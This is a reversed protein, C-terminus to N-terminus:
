ASKWKYFRSGILFTVLGWAALVGINLWFDSNMVSFGYVMSDRIGNAFYTLPLAHSIPQIYDPMMSVDFFIGSIFMMIFSALNAIAMYSELTKSFAAIMFGMAAFTITGVIFIPLFSLLNINFNANYFFIGISALLIIQIAAMVFKVMIESVGFLKVNIPALMLRKLLGNRRIEVMGVMGFLGAQSIAMAIMGTLLFDNYKIDESGSSITRMSMNYKPAVKAEGYNMQELAKNMIGSVAQTTASNTKEANIIIEIPSAQGNAPLVIAADVKKDKVLEEAKELTVPQDEKWKLVPIYKLGMLLNNSSNDQQNTVAVVNIKFEKDSSGGMISLFIVLLLVPFFISWFWVQKERFTVKLNAQFLKMLQKM